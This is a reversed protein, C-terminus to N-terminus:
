NIMNEKNRLYKHGEAISKSRSSKTDLKLETLIKMPDKFILKYLPLIKERKWLRRRLQKLIM